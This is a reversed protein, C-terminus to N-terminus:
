SEVPMRNNSPRMSEERIKRMVAGVIINDIKLRDSLEVAGIPGEEPDIDRLYARIKAEARSFDQNPSGPSVSVAQPPAPAFSPAVPSSPGVVVPVNTTGALEAIIAAHEKLLPWLETELEHIAMETDAKLRRQHKLNAGVEAIKIGLDALSTIDTM